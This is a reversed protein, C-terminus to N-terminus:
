LGQLPKDYKVTLRQVSHLASYFSLLRQLRAPVLGSSAPRNAVRHVGAPQGFSTEAFGLQYLTGNLQLTTNSTLPSFPASRLASFPRVENQRM